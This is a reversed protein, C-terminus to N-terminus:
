ALVLAGAVVGSRVSSSLFCSSWFKSRAFIKDNQPARRCYLILLGPFVFSGLEFGAALSFAVTLFSYRLLSRSFTLIM